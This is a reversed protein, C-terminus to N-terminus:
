QFSGNLLRNSDYYEEEESDYVWKKTTDIKKANKTEKIEEEVEALGENSSKDSGGNDSHIDM